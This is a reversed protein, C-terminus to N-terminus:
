ETGKVTIKKVGTLPEGETDSIYGIAGPVSAVSSIVMGDDPAAVPAGQGSFNKEGIWFLDVDRASKKLIQRYFQNRVASDGHDFFRVKTGNPWSRKRKFYFDAIQSATLEKVESSAHVIFVPNARAVASM